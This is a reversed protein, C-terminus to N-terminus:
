FESQLVLQGQIWHCDKAEMKHIGSSCIHVVMGPMTDSKARIKVTLIKKEKLTYGSTNLLKPSKATRKDRHHEICAEEEHNMTSAQDGAMVEKNKATLPLSPCRQGEEKHVPKLFEWPKEASRVEAKGPHLCSGTTLSSFFTTNLIRVKQKRLPGCLLYRPDAHLEKSQDKEINTLGWPDPFEQKFQKSM